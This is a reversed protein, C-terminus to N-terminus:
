TDCKEGVVLLDDTIVCALATRDDRQLSYMGASSPIKRWGVSEFWKRFDEGYTRAGIPAGWYNRMVEYILWKGDEGTVGYTSFMAMFVRLKKGKVMPWEATVYANPNYLLWTNVNEVYISLLLKVELPSANGFYRPEDGVWTRGDLTGRAKRRDLTVDAQNKKYSLKLDSRYVPCGEAAAVGAGCARLTGDDELQSIHALCAVDWDAADSVTRMERVNHPEILSYAGQEGMFDVRKVGMGAYCSGELGVTEQEPRTETEPRSPSLLHLREPVARMM